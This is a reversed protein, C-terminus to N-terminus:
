YVFVFDENELDTADSFAKDALRDDAGDETERRMAVLLGANEATELSTDVVIAKKGLAVRRRGHARNLGGLYVSTIGVLCIVCTFFVINARLGRTYTPAEDPTFLLPGM